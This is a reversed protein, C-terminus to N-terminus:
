AVEFLSPAAAGHRHAECSQTLFALVNRDQKRATHAVTMLRAAFLNGRESNTGFSMKRWLVFGRIEREAHNNTPPVGRCTVYTWLADRHALVDACSRSFRKIDMTTARELLAEIEKQLPAMWATFQQQTLKGDQYAHWYDFVIGTYGVLERGIAGSKDARESFSVFKRLLHAWCIQRRDMAWFGLAKARDSVLIGKLTGILSRLTEKSGDAVIQFVTVATTALTWLQLGKGSQRWSTGDTHKVPADRAKKWAEDVAPVVADSVRAEIASVAGLSIDLGLVDSFLAVVTRRSLHYVGVFLGVLAMLRPGFPSGLVEKDPRARTTHGCRCTVGHFRHETLHPKVPPIETQQFRKADPDPTEPLPAWCNECEKPFHHKFDDVQDEPLLARHHGKHGRQGGRKRGSRRQKGTGGALGPPDTSPPKHSNRSNQGLRETLEALKETLEAVLKKLQVIERAQEAIVADRAAVQSELEAIRTDRPDM